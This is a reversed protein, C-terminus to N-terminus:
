SNLITKSSHSSYQFKSIHNAIVFSPFSRLFDVEIQDLWSDVWYVNKALWDVALGEATWIGYSVIPEIDTLVSFFDVNM